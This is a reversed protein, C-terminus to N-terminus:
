NQRTYHAISLCVVSTASIFCYGRILFCTCHPFKFARLLLIFESFRSLVNSSSSLILDIRVSSAFAAFIRLLFNSLQLHTGLLSNFSLIFAKCVDKAIHLFFLKHKWYHNNFSLIPTFNLVIKIVCRIVSKLYMYIMLLLIVHSKTSNRHLGKASM